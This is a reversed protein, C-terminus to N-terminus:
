PCTYPCCLLTDQEGLSDQDVYDVIVDVSPARPDATAFGFYHGWTAACALPKGYELVSPRGDLCPTPAHENGAVFYWPAPVRIVFRKDQAREPYSVTLGFATAEPGLTCLEACAPDAEHIAPLRLAQPFGLAPDIAIPAALDGGSRCTGPSEANTGSLDILIAETPVSLRPPDSCLPVQEAGRSYPQYTPEDPTVCGPTPEVLAADLMAPAADGADRETAAGADGGGAPTVDSGDCAALPPVVLGLGGLTLLMFSRRAAVM